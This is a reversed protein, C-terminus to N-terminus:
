AKKQANAKVRKLFRIKSQFSQYLDLFEDAVCQLRTFVEFDEVSQSAACHSGPQANDIPDLRLKKHLGNIYESQKRKEEKERELARSLRDVETKLDSITQRAALLEADEETDRTAHNNTRHGAGPHQKNKM